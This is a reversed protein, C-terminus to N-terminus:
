AHEEVQGACELVQVAAVDDVTVDFRLIEHYHTCVMQCICIPLYVVNMYM